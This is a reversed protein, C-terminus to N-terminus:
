NGEAYIFRCYITSGAANYNFGVVANKRVPLNVMVSHNLMSTISYVSLMTFTDYIILYQNAATVYKNVLVWGNAPAKWTMGDVPLDFDIYRDSPFSLAAIAARTEPTFAKVDADGLIPVEGAFTVASFLLFVPLFYKKM